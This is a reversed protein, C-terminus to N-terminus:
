GLIKIGQEGEFAFYFALFFELTLFLSAFLRLKALSFLLPLLFLWSVSFRVGLFDIILSIKPAWSMLSPVNMAWSFTFEIRFLGLAGM